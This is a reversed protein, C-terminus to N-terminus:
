ASPRRRPADRLVGWWRDDPCLLDDTSIVDADRRREAAARALSARPRPRAERERMAIGFVETGRDVGFAVMGPSRDSMGRGESPPRFVFRYGADFSSDNRGMGM